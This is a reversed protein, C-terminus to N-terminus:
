KISIKQNDLWLTPNLLVGDLHSAVEVTGGFTSNDGLAIHVTGLIKEDELVSGTLQAFQNLGLGLEAINRAKIGHVDVLKKLQKAEEGGSIERAIGEAVKIVIPNKLLGVGSMSGDIVLSGRATGELPAIFAEGPPLNGFSGKLSLEGGDALATRGEISFSLDTGVPTTIRVENAETLLRAYLNARAALTSDIEVLTRSMAEETIGPMSAVRAGKQNAEKRARTHSLSKSTALVIIDAALMAQAVMAPPEEGSSQRSLMEVLTAETRLSKGAEFLANGVRRLPEDVVILVREGEKAGLYDALVTKASKVLEIM